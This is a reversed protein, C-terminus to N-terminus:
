AAMRGIRAAAEALAAHQREQGLNLGEAFLSTNIQLIM